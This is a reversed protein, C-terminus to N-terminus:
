RVAPPDVTMADAFKRILRTLEDIDREDWSKFVARGIRERAADLRDTM